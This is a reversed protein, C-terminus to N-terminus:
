NHHDGLATVECATDFALAPTNHAARSILSLVPAAVSNRDSGSM